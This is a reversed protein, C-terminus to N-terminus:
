RGSNVYVSIAGATASKTIGYTGVSNFVDARYAPVFQVQTGSSTAVEVWEAGVWLWFDVTEAGALGEIAVTPLGYKFDATNLTFKIQSGDAVASTSAAAVLRQAM